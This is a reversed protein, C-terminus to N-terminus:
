PQGQLSLSYAVPSRSSNFAAEDGALVRGDRRQQIAKRFCGFPVVFDGSNMVRRAGDEDFDNRWKSVEAPFCEQFENIHHHDGCM